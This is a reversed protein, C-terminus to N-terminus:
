WAFKKYDLTFLIEWPLAPLEQNHLDRLAILTYCIPWSKEVERSEIENWFDIIEKAYVPLTLLTELKNENKLQEPEIFFERTDIINLDEM